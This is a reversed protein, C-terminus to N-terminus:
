FDFFVQVEAETVAAMVEETVELVEVTVEAMVAAEMVEVMDEAVAAAMVVEMICFQFERTPQTHM